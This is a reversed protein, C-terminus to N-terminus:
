GAIYFYGRDDDNNVSGDKSYMIQITHTGGDLAYTCEIYTTNSQKGKTTFAGQGRSATTDIAFAETYDYNSEAFSRIYVTFTTYGTVTIIATSTGDDTNYSGADSKYVTHGDVTTGSDVWQGSNLNVSYSVAINVVPISVTTSISPNYTSTATVTVVAGASVGSNLTLMGNSDITANNSAVTLTYGEQSADALHTLIDNYFVKVAGGSTNGNYININEYTEITLKTLDIGDIKNAYESWYSATRYSEVLNNPVYIYGVGSAIPSNDFVYSGELTPIGDTRRIIVKALRSCGYFSYNGISNVETGLDVYQLYNCTYFCREGMTQIKPLFVNLLGDCDYFCRNGISQLNNCRIGTPGDDEYFKYAGMHTISNNEYFGSYNYALALNERYSMPFEYGNYYFKEVPLATAIDSNSLGQADTITLIQATNSSNNTKSINYRGSPITNVETILNEIKNNYEILRQTNYDIISANDTASPEIPRNPEPTGTVGNKVNILQALESILSQQNSIQDLQANLETTLNEDITVNNSYIAGINNTGKKLM